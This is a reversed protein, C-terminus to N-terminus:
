LVNVEKGSLIGLFFVLLYRVSNLQLDVKDGDRDLCYKNEDKKEIYIKSNKDVDHYIMVSDINELSKFVRSIIEKNLLDTNILFEIKNENNLVFNILYYVRNDIHKFTVDYFEFSEPKNEEILTNM